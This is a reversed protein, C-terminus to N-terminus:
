ICTLEPFGPIEPLVVQGAEAAQLPRVGAPRVPQRLKGVRQIEWKGALLDGGCEGCATGSDAGQKGELWLGGVDPLVLAGVSLFDGSAAQQKEPM